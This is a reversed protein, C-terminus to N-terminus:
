VRVGMVVMDDIQQNDDMWKTIAIDLAKKQVQMSYQHNDLITNKLRKTLFKRYLPGGFQDIMGDSFTYFSDGKELQIEHLTFERPKSYFAVPMRDAKYQTLEGNKIVYLPNYAGSFQLLKTDLNITTVAMDMGDRPKNIEEKKQKLTSIVKKRLEELILNPKTVLEDNVTEDLFTLGLMSMFAGPVGHGTCDATVLIIHNNVKKWWYFDGSVIDKPKYFVFYDEFNNKLINSSPLVAQQIKLAYEISDTIKKKQEYLLDRNKLIVDRQVLIEEKQQLIEATRKNVTNELKKNRLLLQQKSYWIYSYIATIIIIGSLLYFWWTQWFPPTIKIYLESPTEEWVGDHNASRIKLVYEGPPINTFTIYRQNYADVWDKNFPFLMYQYKNNGTSAFHLAAFQVSFFDAHYSFTISDTHSINRDLGYSGIKVSQNMIKFDTIVTNSQITDDYISDPHFSNLGNIGGFFYLGTVTKCYAGISFENSQLGDDTNFVKTTENTKNFKCIGKRTSLWLNNNNDELIGYVASGPIGEKDRFNKFSYVDTNSYIFRSLGNGTGIWLTDGKSQHIAFIDNDAISNSKGPVNLFRQFDNTKEHYLNLGNDTGIWIRKQEDEYLSLIRNDSITKKDNSVKYSRVFAKSGPHQINIGNKSGVWLRGKSDKLLCTIENDSLSSNNGPINKYHIANYNPLYLKNLGANDTGVWLANETKDYLLARIRNSSLQHFGQPPASIRNWRNTEPNLESIGNEDTGVWIQNNKASIAKIRNGSLSNRNDSLHQYCTFKSNLITKNVGGGRTAIWMIGAQDIIIDRVDNYSLSTPNQENNQYNTFKKTSINLKSLGGIQSGIWLNGKNDPFIININNEQLGIKNPYAYLKEFYDSEYHYKNLGSATGVWITGNKDKALCRVQNHSVSKPNAADHKYHKFKKSKPNLLNLGNDTGIWFNGDNGEVVSWIQNSSISSPNKPNHQYVLFSNKEPDFFNLGGGNTGLWIKGKSDIFITQVKDNSISQPNNPEHKWNKFSDKEPNYCNLGRGWTGIWINGKADVQIDSINNSSITNQIDPNYSFNEFSYGDFRDLAGDQTGMWIFGDKDQALCYVISHSLGQKISIHEFNLDSQQAKILNTTFSFFLLLSLFKSARM